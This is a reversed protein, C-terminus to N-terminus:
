IFLVTVNSLLILTNYFTIDCFYFQIIFLNVTNETVTIEGNIHVSMYACHMVFNAKNRAVNNESFFINPTCDGRNSLMLLSSNNDSFDCKEITINSPYMCLNGHFTSVM